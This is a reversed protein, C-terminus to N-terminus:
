KILDQVSYMFYVYNSQKTLLCYLVNCSFFQTQTQRKINAAPSSAANDLSVLLSLALSKAEEGETLGDRLQIGDGLWSGCHYGVSEDSEM